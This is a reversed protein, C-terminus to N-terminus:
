GGLALPAFEGLIGNWEGKGWAKEGGGEMGNGDRGREMGGLDGRFEMRRERRGKGGREEGEM